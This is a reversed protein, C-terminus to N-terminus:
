RVRGAWRPEVAEWETAWQRARRRDLTVVVARHAGAVVVVMVLFALVAGSVAQAGLGAASLPAETSDGARDVWTSVLEGARSGAPVPIQIVHAVGDPGTWVAPEPVDATQPGVPLPADTILRATVEHSEAAQRAATRGLDSRTLVGVALAVPVAALLLLALMSRSLVQLRDSARKLPGSGMTFRRLVRRAFAPARMLPSCWM